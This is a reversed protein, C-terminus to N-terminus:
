NATPKHVSDIVLFEAEIKTSELKLGLQEQIATFFSPDNSLQSEPGATPPPSQARPLSDAAFQMKIDFLGSLGTRDVVPRDMIRSLYAVFQDMSIKAAVIVGPGAKISGPRQASQQLAPDATPTENRVLKSGAKTEVLVYSPQMRTERHTKLLFRDALLSRLRAAMIEPIYPPSWNPISTVDEAKAYVSWRDSEIWGDGGSMQYPTLKYAIAILTKLSFSEATFRGGPEIKLTQRQDAATPRIAAVDFSVKTEPSTQAPLSSIGVSNLVAIAICLRRTPGTKIFAQM